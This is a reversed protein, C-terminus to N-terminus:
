KAVTGALTLFLQQRRYHCHPFQPGTATVIKESRVIQRRGRSDRVVFHSKGAATVVTLHDM